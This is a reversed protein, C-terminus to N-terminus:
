FASSLDVNKEARDWEEPAARLCRHDVSEQALELPVVSAEVSALETESRADRADPRNM